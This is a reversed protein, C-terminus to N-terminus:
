SVSFYFSSLLRWFNDPLAVLHDHDITSLGPTLFDGHGPNQKYWGCKIIWFPFRIPGHWQWIPSVPVISWFFLRLLHSKIHEFEADLIFLNSPTFNIHLEAFSYQLSCFDPIFGADAESIHSTTENPLAFRYGSHIKQVQNFISLSTPISPALHLLM